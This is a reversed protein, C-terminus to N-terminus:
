IEEKYVIENKENMWAHIRQWQKNIWSEQSPFKPTPREASAHGEELHHHEFRGERNKCRWLTIPKM